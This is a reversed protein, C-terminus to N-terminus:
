IMIRRRTVTDVTVRRIKWVIFLWMKPSIIFFASDRLLLVAARAGYLM